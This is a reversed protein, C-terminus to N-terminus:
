VVQMCVLVSVGYSLYLALFQSPVYGYPVRPLLGALGAWSGLSLSIGGTGQPRGRAGRHWLEPPKKTGTTGQM